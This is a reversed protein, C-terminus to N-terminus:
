SGVFPPARLAQSVPPLGGIEASVKLVLIPESRPLQGALNPGFPQLRWTPQRTSSAEFRVSVTLQGVLLSCAACWSRRRLSGPTFLLRVRVACDHVSLPLRACRTRVLVTLHLERRYLRRSADGALRPPELRLDGLKAGLAIAQVRYAPSEGAGTHLDADAGDPSFRDSVRIGGNGSRGLNGRSSSLPRWRWQCRGM